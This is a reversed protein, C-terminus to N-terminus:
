RRRCWRSAASSSSYIRECQNGSYYNKGDGFRFTKVTCHNECGPCVEIGTEYHRERALDEITM